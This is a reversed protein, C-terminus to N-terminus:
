ALTDGVLTAEDLPGIAAITLPALPSFRHLVAMVQDLTVADIAEKIEQITRLKREYWWSRTIAGMRSGSGEGRM